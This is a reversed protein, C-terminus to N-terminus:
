EKRESSPKICSHMKREKDFLRWGNSTQAWTFNSKHCYKCVINFPIRKSRSYYYYYDGEPDENFLLRDWADAEHNFIDSM